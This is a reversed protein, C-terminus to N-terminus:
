DIDLLDPQQPDRRRQGSHGNRHRRVTRGDVGTRRAIERESLGEADLRRIEAWTDARRGIPGLPVPITGGRGHDVALAACIVRAKELGVALTLWHNEGPSSPFYAPGGGKALAVALAAGDGAVAAIDALVGPWSTM